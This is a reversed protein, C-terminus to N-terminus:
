GDNPRGSLGTWLAKGAKAFGNEPRQPATGSARKALMFLRRVFSGRIELALLGCGHGMGGKITNRGRGLRGGADTEDAHGPHSLGGDAKGKGPFQAPGEHVRIVDDLGQVARAQLGHGVFQALFGKKVHLVADNRGQTQLAGDDGGAAAHDVALAAHTM